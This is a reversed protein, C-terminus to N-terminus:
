GILNVTRFINEKVPKKIHKTLNNQSLIKQNECVYLVTSTKSSSIQIPLMCFTNGCKQYKM